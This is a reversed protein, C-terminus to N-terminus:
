VRLFHMLESGAEAVRDRRLSYYTLGGEETVTVLGAARLQTLHHKTTPKSLELQEALETLYLDRDVLLRLIRLRTEDGLARYLRVATQPPASRDIASLTNDSIPYGIMRWGQGHFLWNYPRGFYQPALVVRRIGPEPLWRLGGTTREIAEAPDGAAFQPRWTDADLEIMRRIRPEIEVYSRQWAAVATRVRAATAEPDRLADALPMSEGAAALTAELDAIAAMDGALIRDVLPQVEYHEGLDAVMQRLLANPTTEGLLQVVDASTQVEPQEAVMTSLEAIVGKGETGFVLADTSVASNAERAQELWRRDEPLLEDDANSRFSLLFDYPTRVDFEVAYPRESGMGRILPRSTQIVPPQATDGRSTPRPAM